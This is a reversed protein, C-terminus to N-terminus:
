RANVLGLLFGQVPKRFRTDDRGEPWESHRNESAPLHTTSSGAADNHAGRPDTIAWGRLGGAPPAYQRNHAVQTSVSRTALDAIQSSTAMLLTPIDLDGLFGRM